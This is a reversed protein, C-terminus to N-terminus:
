GGVVNITLSALKPLETAGMVINGTPATVVVNQVGQVSYNESAIQGPYITEAFRFQNPDLFDRTRNEVEFKVIDPDIDPYIYVTLTLNISKYQVPFINITQNMMSNAIIYSKVENALTTTYPVGDMTSLYIQIENNANYTEIAVARRIGPYLEALDEYDSGVVAIGGSRKQKPARERVLDLDEFDLGKETADLNQTTDIDTNDVVLNNILGPSLNGNTGGGLRFSAFLTSGFEPIMGAKGDGFLVMVESDETPTLTFHRSNPGSELFDEVLDWSFKTGREETEIVVTDKLVDLYPIEFNQFAGGNSVGIDIDEYTEGQTISVTGSAQGAPIILTSDTEFVITAGLEPNTSVKTGAPIVVTSNLKGARKVFEQREGKSAQQWKIEYGLFKTLLLIGRKTKALPLLNERTAKDIQYSMIEFGVANLSLIAMGMDTDSTDTWEPTLNPINDKFMAMIGDYDRATYDYRVKDNRAM